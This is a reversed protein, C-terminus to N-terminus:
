DAPIARRVPKRTAAATRASPPVPLPPLEGYLGAPRSMGSTGSSGPMPNRTQIDM